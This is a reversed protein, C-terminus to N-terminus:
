GWVGWDRVQAAGKLLEEDKVGVEAYSCLLDALMSVSFRGLCAAVAPAAAELM